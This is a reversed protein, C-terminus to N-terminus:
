LTLEEKRGMNEEERRLNTYLYFQLVLIKMMTNEQRVIHNLIREPSVVCM